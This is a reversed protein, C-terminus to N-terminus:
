LLRVKFSRGKIKGESLRKLAQHALGRKIAVFAQFDFIAIKGVASGPLGADGTLAGLLDGPRVKDKRGGAICLTSMPPLLPEPSAKLQGLAYWALPQKQLDEIAQARSAEAPAVLSLALGKEGARGSRGIRHIHVEPDRALEVNIVTELAAIDLGRAAVDTAVLVNCSRNAFVTLVQDRERQELDGHLALASIRQAKLADALEQCQQRTQCFAVCSQPRFHQLLRVVADMRQKPDIEFFRQEIQSDAHLSEVRVQRPDRMFTKALKEIGDPYTASFLLTQRREPLQGIIEAISDYFGMDLMRDAEDLVLTNLGDLVLTGKRLHEQIRGPTGVVVHAGHELSAVQPGYPVGGCLPLVKINDAARALRRIEKAVQDALERTPCLVLAQCGFYRPNLPSLLALGFAATKGSGTKAQAILDHGQLILPLSQAQIPTMERYGLSDLNALLDASLPLSSFATSTM